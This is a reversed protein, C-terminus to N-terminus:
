EFYSMAWEYLEAEESDFWDDKNLAKLYNEIDTKTAPNRLYNRGFNALKENYYAEEKEYEEKTIEEYSNSSMYKGEQIYPQSIYDFESEFTDCFSCSGYSSTILIKEGNYEVIAGWSGQYSGTFKSSIIKAGAAKLSEIYGMENLTKILIVGITKIKKL